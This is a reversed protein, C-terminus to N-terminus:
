ILNILRLHIYGVHVLGFIAGTRCSLFNNKKEKKQKKMKIINNNSNSPARTSFWGYSFEM